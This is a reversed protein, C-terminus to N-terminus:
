AALRTAVADAVRPSVLLSLHGLDDFVVDDLETGGDGTHEARARPSLRASDPPIILNDCRSWISTYLVGAHDADSPLGPVLDNRANGVAARAWATGRHPTAITVLRRVRSAGGETEIYRRAVLGGMSHAVIDVRDVGERAAIEEVFRALREAGRAIGAPTYYSLGYLPGLGRRALTTGLWLWNTRNMMYGHLLIVPRRRRAPAGLLPEGEIAAEYRAGLLAFLPWTPTMLLTALLEKLFAWALRRPRPPRAFAVAFTLLNFGAAIAVFAAVLALVVTEVIGAVVRFTFAPRHV